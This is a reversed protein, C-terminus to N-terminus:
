IFLCSIFDMATMGRRVPLTITKGAKFHEIATKTGIRKTFTDSSHQCASALEVRTGKAKFAITVGRRRHIKNRHEPRFHFISGGEARWDEVLKTNDIHEVAPKVPLTTPRTGTM